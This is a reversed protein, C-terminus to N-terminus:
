RPHAVSYLLTMQIPTLHNQKPTLNIMLTEKARCLFSIGIGEGGGDEQGM